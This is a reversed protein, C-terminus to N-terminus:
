DPFSFAPALSDPRALAQELREQNRRAEAHAPDLRLAQEWAEKARQYEGQQAYAVGLANWAKASPQGERVAQELIERARVADRKARLYLIGLNYLAPAFKADAARRFAVIAEDPRELRDLTGGLDNYAEAFNPRLRVAERLAVEAKAFEGKSLLVRGLIHQGAASRPELEVARRAERYAPEVLQRVLYEGALMTRTQAEIEKGGAHNLPLPDRAEQQMAWLNERATELFLAKPGSFELIPRDDTHRAWNGQVFRDVEEAGLLFHSLFAVPTGIGVEVLHARVRDELFRARLHAVDLVVPELSGIMLTDSGSIWLTTQPFVEHFTKIAARFDAEPMRYYPLWQCLIGGPKLRVRAARFHELTFLNANGTQWPNSPESIIVDYARPGATLWTRGDLLLLHSRPDALANGNAQEFFQSAEVVEPSIEVTDARAIPHRLASGLTVGSGLGIVLVDKPDRHLLLPVHALLRQTLNDPSDGADTKGNVRLFLYQGQFVSVTATVGEKYYLLRFRQLSDGLGGGSLREYNPAYVYVGSNLLRTDWGPLLALGLVPVAVLAVSATRRTAPPLVSSRWLLVAALLLNVLALALMGRRLGVVPILVFGGAFAGLIAGVTNVSYADAVARGAGAWRAAAIRSAVPFMAGMATTPVVLLAVTVLFELTILGSWAGGTARYMGFVVEPLRDYFPSTALISLGIIAQLIGVAGGLDAVRDIRRAALLSGLGIGFLFGTLVVAFAYVSSGYVLILVRTLIVEFALAAFGSIGYCALLWRSDTLAQKEVGPPRLSPRHPTVVAQEAPTASRGLRWAVAGVGLNLAAAALTSWRLGLAPILLFGGLGSGLAAGITNWAYLRGAGTGLEGADRVLARGMVPVTGGMLLTAPLLALFAFGFRALALALPAAYLLGFIKGHLGDVLWLIGPFLLAYVGIGTELVAYTRLPNGGRDMRRSALFSGLGLGFMFTTLVTSVALTTAGFILTLQRSWVVEYILGAIGSAAFLLLVIRSRQRAGQEITARRLAKKRPPM